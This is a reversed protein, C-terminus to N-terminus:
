WQMMPLFYLSEKKTAENKPPAEKEETTERAYERTKQFRKGLPRGGKM